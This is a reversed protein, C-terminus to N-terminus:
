EPFEIDEKSVVVCNDEYYGASEKYHGGSASPIINFQKVREAFFKDSEEITKHFVVKDAGGNKFHIRCGYYNKFKM